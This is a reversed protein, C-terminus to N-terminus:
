ISFPATAVPTRAATSTSIATVQPTSVPKATNMTLNARRLSAATAASSRDRPEQRWSGRAVGGIDVEDDREHMPQHEHEEDAPGAIEGEDEDPEPAPALGARVRGARGSPEGEPRLDADDHGLAHQEDHE